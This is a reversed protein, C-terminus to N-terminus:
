GGRFQHCPHTGVPRPVRRDRIATFAATPGYPGEGGMASACNAPLGHGALGGVRNAWGWVKGEERPGRQQGCQQGGGDIVDNDATLGAMM